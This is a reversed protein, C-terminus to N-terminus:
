AMIQRRKRASDSRRPPPPVRPPSTLVQAGSTRDRTERMISLVRAVAPNMEDRRWLLDLGWPMHLGEIPRVVLGAPPHGGLSNWGICWGKGEAALAWALHLADVTSENRPKLGLADLSRYVEDYLPPHFAREMFLFPVDALDSAQITDKAALPHHEGVLAANIEDVLLREHAVRPDERDLSPYAHCLGIDIFGERLADIQKPTPYEEFILELRPFRERSRQLTTAVIRSAAATQVAGIVCRGALGRRAQAAVGLLQDTAQLVQTTGARLVEGADTLTVGRTNRDFLPAGILEELDSVQRSLSPQTLGLREAARGFGGDDAVAAFYRLHRLELGPPTGEPLHRPKPMEPLRAERQDRAARLVELVAQVLPRQPIGARWMLHTLMPCNFGRVPINVTGPPPRHRATSQSPGWGRGAAVVMIASAPTAYYFEQPSEIGARKLGERVASVLEPLREETLMALPEDALDEPEIMKHGALPHSTAVLASDMKLDIWPEAVLRDDRPAMGIGIDVEGRAIADHQSMAMIEVLDIAADPLMEGLCLIANAVPENAMVIRGVAIVCRGERGSAARRAAVLATQVADLVRQACVLLSEGAQTVTVGRAARQLLPVGVEEELDKIQRSLAPQALHLAAAARSFGRERAVAAFYRLHRLELTSAAGM